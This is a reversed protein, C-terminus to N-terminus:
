KRRRKQKLTEEAITLMRMSLGIMVGIGLANLVCLLTLALVPGTMDRRPAASSGVPTPTAPQATTEAALAVRPTPSDPALVHAIAVMVVVLWVLCLLHVQAAPKHSLHRQNSAEWPQEQTKLRESSRM